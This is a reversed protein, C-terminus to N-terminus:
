NLSDTTLQHVNLGQLQQGSCSLGVERIHIESLPVPGYM